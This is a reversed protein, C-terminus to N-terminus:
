IRPSKPKDSGGRTQTIRTGKDLYVLFDEAIKGRKSTVIAVDNVTAQWSTIVGVNDGDPFNADGNELDVSVLKRWSTTADRATMNVKSGGVNLYRWCQEVPVGFKQAEKEDMLNYARVSRCANEMASAGRGDASTYKQKGYIKRTHHVLCICCNGRKAIQVWGEKIVMDIANNDNEPVGHSSVFPDVIM